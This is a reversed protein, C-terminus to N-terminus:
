SVVQVDRRPYTLLLCIGSRIVVIVEHLTSVEAYHLTAMPKPTQIWTQIRTRIRCHLYAMLCYLSLATASGPNGLPIPVPMASGEPDTLTTTKFPDSGNRTEVTRGELYIIYETTDPDTRERDNPNSSIPVEM